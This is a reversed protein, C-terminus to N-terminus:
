EQDKNNALEHTEQIFKEPTAGKKKLEDTLDEVYM